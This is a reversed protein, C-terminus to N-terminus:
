GSSGYPRNPSLTQIYEEPTLRMAVSTAFATEDRSILYQCGEREAAACILGDEYDPEDSLLAEECIHRDFGVLLFADLFLSVWARRTAESFDKQTIFYFDKLSGPFVYGMAHNDAIHDFLLQAAQAGPRHGVAIDLLANADLLLRDM